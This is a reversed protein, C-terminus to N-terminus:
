TLLFHTSPLLLSPPLLPPLSLHLSSSPLSYPSRQQPLTLLIDVTGHGNPSFTSNSAGEVWWSQCLVSSVEASLYKLCCLKRKSNLAGAMNTMGQRSPSVRRRQPTVSFYMHFTCVWFYVAVDKNHTCCPKSSFANIDLRPCHNWELWISPCYDVTLPRSLGFM